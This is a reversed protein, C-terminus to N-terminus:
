LELIRKEAQNLFRNHGDNNLHSQDSSNRCFKEDFESLWMFMNSNHFSDYVPLSYLNCIEIIANAYDELKYVNGDNPGASNWPTFFIIKKDYFQNVLNSCLTKLGNKFDEINMHVNYDNKGGIIIIYDSNSPIENLRNVVPVGTAEDSILGNGNIGLNNYICGYKSALKNHWTQGINNTSNAVYSDGIVSFIKNYINTNKIQEYKNIKIETQENPLYISGSSTYRNLIRIFCDEKAVYCNRYSKQYYPSSTDLNNEIIGDIKKGNKSVYIKYANNTTSVTYYDIVDGKQLLIEDTTSYSNDYNIEDSSSNIYFNNFSINNIYDKANKYFEIFPENLLNKSNCVIVYCDEEAIFNYNNFNANNSGVFVSKNFTFDLNYISLINISSPACCKIKLINGKELHIFDTKIYNDTNDKKVILGEGESNSNSPVYGGLWDINIKGNNDLFPIKYDKDYIFYQPNYNATASVLCIYEIDEQATYTYYHNGSGIEITSLFENNKTVKSIANITTPTSLYAIIKMGKKLPIPLTRKYQNEYGINFIEHGKKYLPNNISYIGGEITNPIFESNTFDKIKEYSISFDDIETAQYVGGDVWSSGNYWYWHGDNTNVYVRNTDTMESVSSAVLPSGSALGNIQNQLNNTITKDAKVSDSNDLRKKLTSYNGRADAVEMNANGSKSADEYCQEIAGAINERVDKGYIANRINKILETINAM